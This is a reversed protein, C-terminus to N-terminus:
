GGPDLTRPPDREDPQSPTTERPPRLLLKGNHLLVLLGVTTEARRLGFSSFQRLGRHEKGDAFAREVTEKRRKYKQQGEASSMRQRLAEVLPEDVM